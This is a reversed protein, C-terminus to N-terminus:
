RNWPRAFSSNAFTDFSSNRACSVPRDNPDPRWCMEMLGQLAPDCEAPIKPTIAHDRIQAAIMLQDEDEHPEKQAVIEWVQSSFTLFFNTRLKDAKLL